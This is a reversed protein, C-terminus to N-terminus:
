VRTYKMLTNLTPDGDQLLRRGDPKFGGAVLLADLKALPYFNRLERANYAWSEQTGMNFVDHALAVMRLMKADHVDHDRVILVGGPRMVQRVGDIFEARLYIPCHHLGIYVTVLDLSREPVQQALAPRYANLAIFDGARRIQGRDLIDVPSNTPAHEAMTFLEGDLDLRGELADLFRGNSGLELYGEYRRSPDLLAVTQECLVRKQKALTPLSYRLDGLLPKIDALRSQVDRYVDADSKGRRVAELILAHLDDQPYLHFVNVLFTKFEERIAPNSYIYHFNGTPTASQALLSQMPTACSLAVLARLMERRGTKM